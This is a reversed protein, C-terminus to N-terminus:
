EDLGAARQGTSSTGHELFAGLRTQTGRTRAIYGDLMDTLGARELSGLVSLTLAQM